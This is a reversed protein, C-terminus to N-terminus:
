SHILADSESLYGKEKLLLMLGKRRRWTVKVGYDREPTDPALIDPPQNCPPTCPQALLMHVLPSSPRSSGEQIVEPTDVDPPPGVSSVDPTSFENSAPTSAGNPPVHRGDRQKLPQDLSKSHSSSSDSFTKSKRKRFSSLQRKPTDSYQATSDTRQNKCSERQPNREDSVATCEAAKKKRSRKPQHSQDRSGGHFSLSPFRCVSNKRSLQSCSGLFSTATQCKRRGRRVPAAAAATTDFEPKVWSHLTSSNQQQQKETFFEKPNIAARVEPGNQLRAGGVPREAFLLPPKETKTVKRPM